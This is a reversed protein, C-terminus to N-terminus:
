LEFNLSKETSEVLYQKWSCYLDQICTSKNPKSLWWWHAVQGIQKLSIVCSNLMIQRGKDTAIGCKACCIILVAKCVSFALLPTGLLGTWADNSPPTSIASTDIWSWCYPLTTVRGAATATTSSPAGCRCSAIMNPFIEVDFVYCHCQCAQWWWCPTVAAFCLHGVSPLGVQVPRAVDNTWKWLSSWEAWILRM